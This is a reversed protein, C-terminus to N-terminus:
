IAAEVVAVLEAYHAPDLQPLSEAGHAELFDRVVKTRGKKSAKVCVARVADIDLAPADEAYPTAVADTKAETPSEVPEAPLPAAIPESADPPLNEGDTPTDQVPTEAPTEPAAKRRSRKPKEPAETKAEAPSKAPEVPTQVDSPESAGSPLNEGDAPTDEIISALCDRFALANFLKDAIGVVAPTVDFTIKLEM